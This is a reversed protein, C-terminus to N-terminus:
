NEEEDETEEFSIFPIRLAIIDGNENIAAYLDYSGDGYGSRTTFSKGDLIIANDMGCMSDYWEEDPANTEFYDFDHIGCTGSDVGIDADEFYKNIELDPRDYDEHVVKLAAVRNEGTLQYYCNYRGPLTKVTAACWTTMDKYCPDSVRTKSSLTIEGCKEYDCLFDLGIMYTQYYESSRYKEVITNLRDLETKPFTFNDYFLWFNDNAPKKYPLGLAKIINERIELNKKDTDNRQKKAYLALKIDSIINSM